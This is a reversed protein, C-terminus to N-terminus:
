LTFFRGALSSVQTRDRPQSSGRSSPLGSWYEQKSFETSLPAQHAICDMPHCSTPCLQAVLCVSVGLVNLPPRLLNFSLSKGLTSAGGGAQSPYLVLSSTCFSALKYLFYFSWPRDKQCLPIPLLPPLSILHLPPTLDKKQAQAPAIPLTHTHTHTHSQTHTILENNRHTENPKHM